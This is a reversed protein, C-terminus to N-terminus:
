ARENSRLSRLIRMEKTSDYSHDLGLAHGIEQPAFATYMSGPDFIVCGLSYTTHFITLSVPGVGCAGGDATDNTVAIIGAYSGFDIGQADAAPMSNTCQEVRTRRDLSNSRNFPAPYWTQLVRSGYLSLQGYSVDHFFDPANGTAIGGISLFLNIYTDLDSIASNLNTPLTRVDPEDAFTCKVVLFPRQVPTQTITPYLTWPQLEERPLPPQCASLTLQLCASLTFIGFPRLRRGVFRIM